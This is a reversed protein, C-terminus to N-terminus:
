QAKKDILIEDDTGFLGLPSFPTGETPYSHQRKHGGKGDARLAALRSPADLAALEQMSVSIRMGNVSDPLFPLVAGM